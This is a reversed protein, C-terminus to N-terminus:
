RPAHVHAADARVFKNRGIVPACAARARAARAIIQRLPDLIRPHASKLEYQV